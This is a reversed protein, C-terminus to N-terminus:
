RSHHSCCQAPSAVFQFQIRRGTWAVDLRADVPRGVRHMLNKALRDSFEDICSEEVLGRRIIAKGSVLYGADSESISTVRIPDDKSRNWM